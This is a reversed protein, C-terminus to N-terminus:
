TQQSVLINALSDKEIRTEKKFVIFVYCYYIFYGISSILAAANIGYKPIFLYDAVVIFLFALLSGTINVRIKNEGAFYATYPYLGSIALIGPIILLFPIYMKSFTPGFVFPFLWYGSAAILLCLGGYLMLLKVSFDKITKKIDRESGSAILPFLVTSIMAPLVFFLQAIKSVQIYNGLEEATNFHRIFFYDIRTIGLFLLNAIFAYSSYRFVRRVSKSSINLLFKDEKSVIFLTFFLILGHIFFSYFYVPIFAMPMEVKSYEFSVVLFIILALNIFTSLINPTIFNHKSYYIANGFAILLNGTVFAIPYMIPYEVRSPYYASYVSYLLLTILSVVLTWILSFNILRSERISKRATYYAVGAELSFGFLQIIFSNVTFLYFVWGTAAAAYYRAFLINLILLLFLSFSKLVVHTKLSSSVEPTNM